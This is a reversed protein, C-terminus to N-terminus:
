VWHGFSNGGSCRAHQGGGFAGVGEQHGQLVDVAVARGAAFRHGLVQREGGRVDLPRVRAAIVAPAGPRRLLPVPGCRSRAPM